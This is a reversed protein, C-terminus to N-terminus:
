IKIEESKSGQSLNTQKRRERPAFIIVVEELMQENKM